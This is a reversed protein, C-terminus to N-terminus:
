NRKPHGQIETHDAASTWWPGLRDLRQAPLARQEQHQFIQVPAIRGRQVHEGPQGPAPLGRPQQEDARIPRYVDDQAPMRQPSDLLLQRPLPAADIQCHLQESGRLDSLIQRRSKGDLHGVARCEPLHGRHNVPASIAM